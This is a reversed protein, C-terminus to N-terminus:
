EPYAAILFTLVISSCLYFSTLYLKRNGNTAEDSQRCIAISFVTELAKQGPDDITLLTKSQRRDAFYLRIIYPHRIQYPSLTITM